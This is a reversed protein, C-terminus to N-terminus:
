ALGVAVWADWQVRFLHNTPTSLEQRQGGTKLKGDVRILFTRVTLPEWWRLIQDSSCLAVWLAL